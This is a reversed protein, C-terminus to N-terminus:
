DCSAGCFWTSGNFRYFGYGSPHYGCKEQASAAEKETLRKTSEFHIDNGKKEYAIITDMGNDMKFSKMQRPTPM